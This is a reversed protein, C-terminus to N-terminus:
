MKWLAKSWEWWWLKSARAYNYCWQVRAEQINPQQWWGPVDSWIKNVQEAAEAGTEFLVGANELAEFYPIAQRCMSCHQKDWFGIMPINAALAISLTTGPHDVVLLKYHHKQIYDQHVIKRKLQPLLNKCYALDDLSDSQPPYPRYFTCELINERLTLLFSKKLSLYKLQQSPMPTSQFRHMYLRVLTGVM